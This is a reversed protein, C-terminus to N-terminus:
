DENLIEYKGLLIGSEAVWGMEGEFAEAVSDSENSLLLKKTDVEIIAKIKIISM